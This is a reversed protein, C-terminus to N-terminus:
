VEEGDSWWSHIKRKVWHGFAWLVALTSLFRIWPLLKDMGAITAFDFSTENILTHGMWKIEPFKIVATAAQVTGIYNVVWTVLTIPLMLLPFNEDLWDGMETFIGNIQEGDPIFLTQLANTVGTVITGPISTIGNLIRQLWEIISALLGSSSDQGAGNGEVVATKVYIMPTDGESAGGQPVSVCTQSQISSLTETTGVCFFGLRVGTYDQDAEWSYSGFQTAFTRGDAAKFVAQKTSGFSNVGAIYKIPTGTDDVLCITYYQQQTLSTNHYIYRGSTGVIQLTVNFGSGAIEAGQQLDFPETCVAAYVCNLWAGGTVQTTAPWGMSYVYDPVLNKNTYQLVYTSAFTSTFNYSTGSQMQTGCLIMQRWGIKTSSAFTAVPGQAPPTITPQPLTDLGSDDLVAEFYEPEHDDEASPM